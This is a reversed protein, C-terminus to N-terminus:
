PTDVEAPMAFPEFVAYKFDPNGELAKTEDLMERLIDTLVAEFAAEDVPSSLKLPLILGRDGPRPLSVIQAELNMNPFYPRAMWAYLMLQLAKPKKSFADVEFEKVSLHESRVSGTKFDVIRLSGNRQLVLDAFGVFTAQLTENAHNFALKRDLKMEPAILIVEEGQGIAKLEGQLFGAIMQRATEFHLHNIGQHYQAIRPCDKFCTELVSPATDLMYKLDSEAFIHGKNFRQYLKELAEHVLSGFTAVDLLGEQEPSAIKLVNEYYWELSSEFYRNLGSASIRNLIYGRIEAIVAPSKEITGKRPVTNSQYASMPLPSVKLNSFRVALHYQLQRLYRSPESAWPGTNDMHYVLQFHTANQLLRYFHNAYVSEHERKGPLKHYARIEYPIFSEMQMKGPLVDENADCLIIHSYGLARTELLGMIQLGKAPEGLLNLRGGRLSDQVLEHLARSDLAEMQKLGSLKRLLRQIMALGDGAMRVELDNRKVKGLAESAAEVFSTFSEAASLANHQWDSLVHSLWAGGEATIKQRFASALTHMSRMDVMASRKGSLGLIEAFPHQIIAQLRDSLFYFGDERRISREQLAFVKDMWDAFASQALSIGMTVNAERIAPPLRNLIPILMSEDALVLATNELEGPELRELLSAVADAQSAKNPCETHNIEVERQALTTDSEIAEGLGSRLNRRIFLGAHNEHDGLWAADTDFLVM